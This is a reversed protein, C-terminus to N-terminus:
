CFQLDNLAQRIVKVNFEGNSAEAARKLSPYKDTLLQFAYFALAGQRDKAVPLLKEMEQEVFLYFKTPEQSASIM